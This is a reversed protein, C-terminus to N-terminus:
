RGRSFGKYLIKRLNPTEETKIHRLVNLIILDTWMKDLETIYYNEPCGTKLHNNINEVLIEENCVCIFCQKKVIRLKVILEEFTILQKTIM